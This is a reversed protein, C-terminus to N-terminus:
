SVSIAEIQGLPFIELSTEEPSIKLYTFYQIWDGLMILRTGPVIEEDIAIHRHGYIFFDVELGEALLARSHGYLPDHEGIHTSEHAEADAYNHSRSLQSFFRALGIGFNPHLRAFMWESLPFTFVKKLFKYGHDGPGLGDGHAFYYRKGFLTREVPHKYITAGIEEKLYDGYWLDHNGTFVHIKIGQDAMEALRGLVRTFGRPVARKYEFWFDFVDGLLYLEAADEKITDLWHVFHKERILSKEADPAGLHLDSAFYINEGLPGM